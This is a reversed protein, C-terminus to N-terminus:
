FIRVMSRHPIGAELFVDGRAEFGLKEYFAVARTQSDLDVSALGSERAERAIVEVLRAGVGRGRWDAVVAVRGIHGDGRMRATAIPRESADFVLWHRCTADSGDLEIEEPVQQEVVFVARRIAIMAERAAGQQWSAPAIRLSLAESM